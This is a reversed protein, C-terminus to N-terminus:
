RARELPSLRFAAFTARDCARILRKPKLLVETLLPFSSAASSVRSITTRDLVDQWWEWMRGSSLERELHTLRLPDAEALDRLTRKDALRAKEREIKSQLRELKQLM